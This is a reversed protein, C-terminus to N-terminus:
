SVDPDEGDAEKKRAKKLDNELKKIAGDLAADNAFGEEKLTDAWEKKTEEERRERVSLMHALDNEKQLLKEVRSRAAIEQLKRGQEKKREAIRALEEETKEEAVPLAYPFQVIREAAGRLQLPDKLRRLLAPYDPSFECFTQLM